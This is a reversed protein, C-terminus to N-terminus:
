QQTSLLVGLDTLWNALPIIPLGILASPDHSTIREFLVAGLGESKFAGACHYPQEILLYRTLQEETLQRFQVQTEDLHCFVRGDPLNLVLSTYFSVQKGQQQKLQQLAVEFTLPKTLLMGECIASQDSAIIWAETQIERLKKAKEQGLRMVLEPVTEGVLPSEDIEPSISSFSVGLRTLLQQRYV